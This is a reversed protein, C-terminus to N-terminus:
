KLRVKSIPTAKSKPNSAKAAQLLPCGAELVGTGVVAAAGTTAVVTAEGTGVVAGAATAGALGAAM